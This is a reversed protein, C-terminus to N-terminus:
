LANEPKTKWSQQHSQPFVYFDSFMTDVIYFFHSEINPCKLFWQNPSFLEMGKWTKWFRGWPASKSPGLASRAEMPWNQYWKWNEPNVFQCGQSWRKRGFYRNQTVQCKRFTSEPAVRSKKLGCNNRHRQSRSTKFLDNKFYLNPWKRSNGNKEREYNEM